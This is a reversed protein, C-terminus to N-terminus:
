QDDENEKMVVRYEGPSLEYEEITVPKSRAMLWKVIRVVIILIFWYRYFINGKRIGMKFAHGLSLKSFLGM